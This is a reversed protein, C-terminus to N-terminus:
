PTISATRPLAHQAIVTSWLAQIEKLSKEYAGREARLRAEDVASKQGWVNSRQDESAATEGVGYVYGTRADIIAYACTADVTAKRSALFGLAVTQLPGLPTTEVRFKTDVSYVLVADAKLDAAVARLDRM